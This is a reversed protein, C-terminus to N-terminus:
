AFAKNLYNVFTQTSNLALFDSVAFHSGAILRRSFSIETDAM